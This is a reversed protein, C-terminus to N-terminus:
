SAAAVLAPQSRSARVALAATVVVRTLVMALAM